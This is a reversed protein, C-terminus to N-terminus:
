SLHQPRNWTNDPDLIQRADGVRIKEGVDWLINRRAQFHWFGKQTQKNEETEKNALVSCRHGGKTKIQMWIFEKVSLRPNVLM